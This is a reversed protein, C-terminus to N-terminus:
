ATKNRQMKQCRPTSKKIPKVTQHVKLLYTSWINKRVKLRKSSTKKEESKKSNQSM